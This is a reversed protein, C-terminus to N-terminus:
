QLYGLQRLVEILQDDTASSHSHSMRQRPLGAIVQVSVERQQLLEDMLGPQYPVFDKSEIEYERTEFADDLSEFTIKVKQATTQFPALLLLPRPELGTFDWEKGGYIGIQRAKLFNFGSPRASNSWELTVRYSGTISDGGTVVVTPGLLGTVLLEDMAQQMDALIAPNRDLLNDKEDPDNSLNYLEEQMLYRGVGVPYNRIYKWGQHRLALMGEATNGSFAPRDKFHSAGNPYLAPLLTQADSLVPDVPIGALELLTPRLDYLRVQAPISEGKAFDENKPPKVILPVHILEDYLNPGAHAYQEKHEWLTEGHDAMLAIVADDYLGERKLAAIFRGIEHDAYMTSDAYLTRALEKIPPKLVGQDKCSACYRNKPVVAKPNVPDITAIDRDYVNLPLSLNNQALGKQAEAGVFEMPQCFPQHPDDLHLFLFFRRDRNRRLWELARDINQDGRVVWRPVNFFSDFGRAYGRDYLAPKYLIAGTAWGAEQFREALMAEPREDPFEGLDHASSGSFLAYFSPVTWNSQAIAQEFRVGDGALTDMAPTSVYKSGYGSLYDARLTDVAILIVNPRDGMQRARHIEPSGWLAYARHGPALSRTEFSLRVDRGAHASLDLRAYQPNLHEPLGDYTVVEDFLVEQRGSEDTLNLRFRVSDGM